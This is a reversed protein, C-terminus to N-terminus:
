RRGNRRAARRRMHVIPFPRGGDDTPSRGTVVFGMTEYFRRAGDNQENVDVSLAGGSLVQAHEILMRGGGRRHYAPDIFLADVTDPTYGLFGAVVDEDAVLVWWETADNSFGSAVLPRLEDIDREALFEHTARVAREWVELMAARDDERARRIQMATM